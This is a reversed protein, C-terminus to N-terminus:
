FPAFSETPREVITSNDASVIAGFVTAFGVGVGIGIGAAAGVVAAAGAAAATGALGALM